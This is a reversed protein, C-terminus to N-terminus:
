VGDYEIILPKNEDSIIDPVEKLDELETDYDSINVEINLEENQRILNLINNETKRLNELKNDIENSLARLEAGKLELKRREEALSENYRIRHPSAPPNIASESLPIEVIDAQPYFIHELKVILLIIAAVSLMFFLSSRSPM